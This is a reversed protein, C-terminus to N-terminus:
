SFDDDIRWFRCMVFRDWGKICVKQSRTILAAKLQSSHLNGLRLYRLLPLTPQGKADNAQLYKNLIFHNMPQYTTKSPPFYKHNNENWQFSCTSYMCVNSALNNPCKLLIISIMTTYNLCHNTHRQEPFKRQDQWSTYTITLDIAKHM